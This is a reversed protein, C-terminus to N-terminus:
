KTRKTSKRQSRQKKRKTHRGSRKSRRKQTKRKKSSKHRSYKRRKQFGRARQKVFLKGIAYYASADGGVKMVERLKDITDIDNKSYVSRRLTDLNFSRINVVVFVDSTRFFQLLSWMQTIEIDKVAESDGKIVTFIHRVLKFNNARLIEESPNEFIHLGRRYEDINNKIDESM